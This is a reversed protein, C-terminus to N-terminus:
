GQYGIESKLGDAPDPSGNDHTIQATKLAHGEFDSIGTTEHDWVERWDRSTDM